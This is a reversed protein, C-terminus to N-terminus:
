SEKKGHYLEKKNKCSARSKLKSLGFDVQPHKQSMCNPGMQPFGLGTQATWQHSSKKFILAMLRQTFCVGEIGIVAGPIVMIQLGFGVLTDFVIDNPGILPIGNCSRYLTESAGTKLDVAEIWGTPADLTSLNPLILNDKELFPMGGNNCIYCRGDPGIAAGNPGGELDAIIIKEGTPKVKTLRGAYIEVLLVDGDPLAVPGEPFSLGTAVEIFEVM